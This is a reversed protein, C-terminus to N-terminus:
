IFYTTQTLKKLTILISRFNTIDCSFIKVKNAIGLIELNSKDATFEDRSTGFVIIGKDILLKALYSGDQGTIGFILAILNKNAM